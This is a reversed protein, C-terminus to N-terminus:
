SCFMLNATLEHTYYPSLCTNQSPTFQIAKQPQLLTLNYPIKSDVISITM